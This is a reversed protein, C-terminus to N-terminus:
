KVWIVTKAKCASPPMQGKSNFTVLTFPDQFALHTISQTVSTHLGQMWRDSIIALIYVFYWLSSSVSTPKALSRYMCSIFSLCDTLKNTWLNSALSQTRGDLRVSFTHRWCNGTNRDGCKSFLHYLEATVARGHPEYLPQIPPDLRVFIDIVVCYFLM